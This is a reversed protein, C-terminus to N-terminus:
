PYSVAAKLRLFLRGVALKVGGGNRTARRCAGSSELTQAIPTARSIPNRGSLCDDDERPDSAETRRGRIFNLVAPNSGKGYGGESAPMRRSVKVAVVRRFGGEDNAFDAGALACGLASAGADGGLLILFEVGVFLCFAVGFGVAHLRSRHVFIVQLLWMLDVVVLRVRVREARSRRELRIPRCKGQRRASLVVPLRRRIRRWEVSGERRREVGRGGGGKTEGRLGVQEILHASRRCRAVELRGGDYRGSEDFAPEVWLSAGRHM